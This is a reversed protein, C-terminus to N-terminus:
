LLSMIVNALKTGSATSYNSASSNGKTWNVDLKSFSTIFNRITKLLEPDTQIRTLMNRLITADEKAMTNAILRDIITNNISNIFSNLADPSNDTSSM